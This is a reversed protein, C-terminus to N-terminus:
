RGCEFGKKFFRREYKRKGNRFDKERIRTHCVQRCQHCTTEFQGSENADRCQM